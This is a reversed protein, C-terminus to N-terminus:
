RWGLKRASDFSKQTIYGLWANYAAEADDPPAGLNATNYEFQVSIPIPYIIMTGYGLPVPKGQRAPQPGGSFLYSDKRVNDNNSGTDIQPSPALAVSVAALVVAVVIQIIVATTGAAGGIVPRIIIDEKGCPGTMLAVDEKDKITLNGVQFAYSINKNRFTDDLYRLFRGDTNANIAVLAEKPTKIDLEWVKGFEQGLRGKLFIRNM